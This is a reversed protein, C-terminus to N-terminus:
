VWNEVVLGAVKEFHKTNNTVLTGELSMVHAAILSDNIGIPKDQNLLATQLDTFHEAACADWAYIDHLRECLDNIIPL